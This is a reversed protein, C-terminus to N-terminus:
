TERQFLHLFLALPVVHNVLSVPFIATTITMINESYTNKKQM